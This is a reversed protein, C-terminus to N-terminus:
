ELDIQLLSPLEALAKALRTGPWTLLTGDVVHIRQGKVAPLDPLAEFATMDAASFAFPETPLLIVDPALAAIESPRIRPYRTDRLGPLEPPAEGLDAALPYRRERDAFINEGGCLRLLDHTYTARSITMWWDPQGTPPERWVPCFVRSPRQGALALSAWEFTTELVSLRVGQQPVRFLEVIAWLLDIAARVTCPFTVWVRFGEAQLAEVDEKRNEERNAIILDPRLGRISGLDPSLPGGVRRLGGLKDQPHICFDTIGVLREGAGLDFLSETVSPVLSVVRRPASKFGLAELSDSLGASTRGM